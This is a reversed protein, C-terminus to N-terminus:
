GAEEALQGGEEGHSRHLPVVHGFDGGHHGQLYHGRGQLRHRQNRQSDAVPASCLLPPHQNFCISGTSVLVISKMRNVGTPIWALLVGVDNVVVASFPSSFLDSVTFNSNRVNKKATITICFSMPGLTPSSRKM